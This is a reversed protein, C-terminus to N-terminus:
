SRVSLLLVVKKECSLEDDLNERSTCTELESSSLINASLAIDLLVLLALKILNNM